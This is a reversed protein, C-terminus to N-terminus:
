INLPIQHAFTTPMTESLPPWGVPTVSNMVEPKMLNVAEGLLFIQVQHGADAFANAHLFAFCAKTSEDSGWASKILVNMAAHGRSEEPPTRRCRRPSAPIKPSRPM